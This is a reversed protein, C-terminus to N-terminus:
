LELNTNLLDMDRVKDSNSFTLSVKGDCEVGYIKQLQFLTTSQGSFGDTWM